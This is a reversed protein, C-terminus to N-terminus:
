KKGEEEGDTTKKSQESKSNNNLRRIIRWLNFYSVGIGFVMLGMTFIHGSELWRDLFYGLLTGGFIPVALDWGLTTAMVAERWLSEWLTEDDKNEKM